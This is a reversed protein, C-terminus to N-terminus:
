GSRIRPGPFPRILGGQETSSRRRNSDGSCDFRPGMGDVPPRRRGSSGDPHNRDPRGAVRLLRFGPVLRHAPEPLRVFRSLADLADEAGAAVAAHVLPWGAALAAALCTMILGVILPIALLIGAFAGGVFPLRYLLALDRSSRAAFHWVAWRSHISVPDACVGQAAFLWAGPRDRNAADSCSSRGRDPLDRRRLNGLGPAAMDNGPDCPDHGGLRKSSRLSGHAALAPGPVAGLAARSGPASRCVGVLRRGSDLVTPGMVSSIDPTVVASAPFLRDLLSWGLHLLVLGLAAIMLKRLDFAMRIAGVIRLGPLIRLLFRRDPYCVEGPM